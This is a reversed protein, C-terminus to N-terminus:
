GTVVVFESTASGTFAESTIVPAPDVAPAPPAELDAKAQADDEAIEETASNRAALHYVCGVATDGVVELGVMDAAGNAFQMVQSQVRVTFAQGEEIFIAQLDEVALEDLTFRLCHMMMGEVWPAETYSVFGDALMQALPHANTLNFNSGENYDQDPAGDATQVGVEDAPLEVTDFDEEEEEQEVAASIVSELLMEVQSNMTMYTRRKLFSEVDQSVLHSRSTIFVVQQPHRDLVKATVETNTIGVVTVSIQEGQKDSKAWVSGPVLMTLIAADIM